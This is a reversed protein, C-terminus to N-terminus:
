KKETTREKRALSTYLNVNQQFNELLYNVLFVIFFNMSLYLIISIYIDMSKICLYEEM